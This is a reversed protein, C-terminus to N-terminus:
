RQSEPSTPLLTVSVDSISDHRWRAVALTDIRATQLDDEDRLLTAAADRFGLTVLARIGRKDLPISTVLAGTARDFIRMTEGGFGPVVPVGIWRNTPEVYIAFVNATGIKGGARAPPLRKTLPKAFPDTRAFWALWVPNRKLLVAIDETNGAIAARHARAEDLDPDIALAADLLQKADDLDLSRIARVARAHVLRARLEVIPYTEIRMGYPSSQVHVEVVDRVVVIRDIYQLPGSPLPAELDGDVVRLPHARIRMRDPLPDHHPIVSLVEIVATYPDPGGECGFHSCNNGNQMRGWVYRREGVRMEHLDGQWDNTGLQSTRLTENETHEAPEVHNWYLTMRYKIEDSAYPVDGTGKQEIWYTVERRKTAGKRPRLDALALGPLLLLLLLAKM